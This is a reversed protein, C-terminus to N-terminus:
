GSDLHCGEFSDSFKPSFCGLLRTLTACLVSFNHFRLELFTESSPPLARSGDASWGVGVGILSGEAFDSISGDGESTRTVGPGHQEGDQWGGEHSAWANPNAGYVFKGQGHMRGEKISGSYTGTCEGWPARCTMAVPAAQVSSIDGDGHVHAGRM